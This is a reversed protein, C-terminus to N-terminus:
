RSVSVAMNRIFFSLLDKPFSLYVAYAFPKRHVMPTFLLNEYVTDNFVSLVYQPTQSNTSFPLANDNSPINDSM